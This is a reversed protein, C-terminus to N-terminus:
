IHILSLYPKHEFPTATSGVELQVATLEWTASATNCWDQTYDKSFASSSYAQWANDTASSSTWDTGLHACIDIKLGTGNDNNFTLNANGPMSFSVNTWTAASLTFPHPYQQATGDNTYPVCYFTGALSSKVWFSLTVYSSASNYDWGCNRIDQAEIIHQIFAYTSTASSTSTNIQKLANSASTTVTDAVSNAVVGQTHAAGQVYVGWRDTSKIGTTTVTSGVALRQNIQMAGNIIMNRNALFASDAMKAPTVADTAITLATAGTVDGTHTANTVKATNAAIETNISNALKDATVADNALQDTNVSGEAPTITTGIDNIGLVQMVDTVTLPTDLTLTTGSVTYNGQQTIGNITVILSEVNPATWTLTHTASTSSSVELQRIDSSKNEVRGLYSM